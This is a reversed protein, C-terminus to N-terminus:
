SRKKNKALLEAELEDMAAFAKESDKTKAFVERWKTDKLKEIAAKSLKGPSSKEKFEDAHIIKVFKNPHFVCLSRSSGSSFDAPDYDEIYSAEFGAKELLSIFKQIDEEAFEGVRVDYMSYIFENEPWVAKAIKEAQEETAIKGGIYECTYTIQEGDNATGSEHWGKADKKNLSFWTPRDHFQSFSESSAHYIKKASAEFLERIKM